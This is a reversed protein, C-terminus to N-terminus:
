RKQVFVPSLSMHLFIEDLSNDSNRMVYKTKQQIKNNNKCLVPQRLISCIQKQFIIVNM